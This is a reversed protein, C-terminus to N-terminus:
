LVISFLEEETAPQQIHGIHWGYCYRCKYAYVADQYQRINEEAEGDSTTVGQIQRFASQLISCAVSVGLGAYDIHLSLDDNVIITIYRENSIKHGRVETEVLTAYVDAWEQAFSPDDIIQDLLWNKAKEIKTM